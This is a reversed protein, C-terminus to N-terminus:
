IRRAAMLRINSGTALVLIHRSASQWLLFDEGVMTTRFADLIQLVLKLYRKSRHSYMTSNVRTFPSSPNQKKWAENEEFGGKKWKAHDAFSM